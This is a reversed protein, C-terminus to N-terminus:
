RSSNLQVTDVHQTHTHSYFEINTATTERQRKGTFANASRYDHSHIQQGKYLERGRCKPMLPTHYHGTCVIIADFIYTEYTNKPLDRVIVEWQDEDGYPRVRIVYHEFKIHEYVNFNQAYLELFSLMDKQPIYSKNQKPIPFDSFSFFCMMTFIDNVSKFMYSISFRIVFHDFHSAIDYM